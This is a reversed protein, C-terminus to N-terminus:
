QRKGSASLGAAIQARQANAREAALEGEINLREILREVAERREDDPGFLTDWVDLSMPTPVVLVGTQPQEPPPPEMVKHQDMLKIVLQVFKHDGKMAQLMINQIMAEHCSMSRITDGDRVTVRTNLAEALVSATNKSGTPRGNPNGSQGKKFQTAKPPKGYGVDYETNDKKSM